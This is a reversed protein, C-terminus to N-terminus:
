PSTISRILYARQLRSIRFPGILLPLEIEPVVRYKWPLSQCPKEHRNDQISFLPFQNIIRLSIIFIRTCTRTRLAIPAQKIASVMVQRTTSYRTVDTYMLSLPMGVVVTEQAKTKTHPCHPVFYPYYSQHVNERQPVTDLFPDSHHVAGHSGVFYLVGANGMM